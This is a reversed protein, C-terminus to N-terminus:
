RSAFARRAAAVDEWTDCDRAATTSALRRLVMDDTLARVSAGAAGPLRRLRARLADVRYAGALPQARGAADVLVAGDSAGIGRILRAVTTRRVFPLDVALVVVVDARVHGLGEELAAVPGGGAPLERTWCVSRRVPRVPGVVVLHEAAAVADLARDLLSAGGVDVSAKDVGGLRRSGGKALVVADFGM